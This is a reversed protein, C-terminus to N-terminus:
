SWRRRPPCPCRASSRPRPRGPNPKSLPRARPRGLRRCPRFPRWCRRISAAPRRLASSQDHRALRQLRHRHVRFPRCPQPFKAPRKARGCSLWSPPWRRPVLPRPRLHLHRSSRYPRYPHLAIRRRHLTPCHRYLRPHRVTSHHHIPRRCRFARTTARIM